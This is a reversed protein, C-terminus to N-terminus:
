DSVQLLKALPPHIDNEEESVNAFVHKVHEKLTDVSVRVDPGDPRHTYLRKEPYNGISPSDGWANKHM